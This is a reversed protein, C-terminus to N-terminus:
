TDIVGQNPWTVELYYVKFAAHEWSSGPCSVSAAWQGKAEKMGLGRRYTSRGEEGERRPRMAGLESGGMAGKEVERFVQSAGEAGGRSAVRGGKTRGGELGVGLGHTPRERM